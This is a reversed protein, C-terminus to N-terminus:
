SPMTTYETTGTALSVSASPDSSGLLELNWHAIIIDSYKLRPLVVMVIDFNNANFFASFALSLPELRYNWNSPLSLCSFQQFGPPPPQLSSLDYWQVRAQAICYSERWFFPPPPQLGLVKPPQPPHIVQPWSNSVLRVFMTFSKDGTFMCFILQAHYCTGIIGAVWSASAPSDSSGPLYLKYHASIAGSCELRPSLFSVGDTIGASQSASAPPDSSTLPKLGACRYDWSSLLSLCFFQKFRPSLPQLSGLVHLQVGAQVVSRSEWRNLVFVRRAWHSTGIIGASQSASVAPDSSTLLELCPQCFLSVGDRSPTITCVQDWSVISGPLCLSCHASIMGSCELRPTSAILIFILKKKKKKQSPTENQM